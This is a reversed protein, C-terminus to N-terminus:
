SVKMLERLKNRNTVLDTLHYQDLVELFATQAKGLAHRLVCAPTIPCSAPESFCSLLQLNETKGIVARINIDHSPKALSLGGGRGRQSKVYGQQVLMQAVIALHNASMNYREAAEHITATQEGDKIALYGLLRLAYDTHTSLQM